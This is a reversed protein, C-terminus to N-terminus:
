DRRAVLCAKKYCKSAGELVWHCPICCSVWNEKSMDTYVKTKCHLHFNMSYLIFHEETTMGCVECKEKRHLKNAILHCNEYSEGKGAWHEGKDSLDSVLKRYQDRGIAYNKKFNDDNAHLELMADRKKKVVDPRNNFERINEQQWELYDPNDKYMQKRKESTIESLGKCDFARSKCCPKNGTVLYKAVNDCYFCKVKGNAIDDRLPKLPSAALRNISMRKSYGPCSRFNKSCSYKKATPFYYIGEDGCGYSCKHKKLM